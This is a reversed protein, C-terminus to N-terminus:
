VSATIKKEDLSKGGTESLYLGARDYGTPVSEAARSSSYVPGPGAAVELVPPAFHTKLIGTSWHWCKKVPPSLILAACRGVAKKYDDGKLLFEAQRAGGALNMITRRYPATGTQVMGYRPQFTKQKAGDCRYCYSFDEETTRATLSHMM